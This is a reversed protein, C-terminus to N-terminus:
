PLLPAVRRAAILPQTPHHTLPKAAVLSIGGRATARRELVLTDALSWYDQGTTKGQRFVAGDEVSLDAAACDLCSASAAAALFLSHVEACALRM